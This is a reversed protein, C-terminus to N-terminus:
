ISPSDGARSLRMLLNGEQIQNLLTEADSGTRIRRLIEFSDQEPATRLFEFLQELVSQRSRLQEYKHRM